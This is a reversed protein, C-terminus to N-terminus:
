ASPLALATCRGTAVGCPRITGLRLIRTREKRSMKRQFINMFLSPSCPLDPNNKRLLLKFRNRTMRDVPIGGTLDICNKNMWLSVLGKELGRYAHDVL